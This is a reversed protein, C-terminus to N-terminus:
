GGLNSMARAFIRSTRKERRRVASHVHKSKQREQQENHTHHKHRGPVCARRGHLLTCRWLHHVPVHFVVVGDYLDALGRRQALRTQCISGLHKWITVVRRDACSHIGQVSMGGGRGVAVRLLQPEISYSTRRGNGRGICRDRFSVLEM